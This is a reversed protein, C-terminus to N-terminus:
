IWWPGTNCANDLCVGRVYSIRGSGTNLKLKGRWKQCAAVSAKARTYHVAWM